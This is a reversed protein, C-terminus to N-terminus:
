EHGKLKLNVFPLSGAGMVQPFEGNWKEIAMKQLIEPTITLKMLRQAEAQGQARNVEAKASQIAEQATYEARRAHQEAIQKSEIAQTFETSFTLNVISLDNFSVGYSLLRSKLMGDITEKLEMRKSLIEEATMKSMAAKFVENVAPTIIRGVVDDEDGISRYTKVVQDPTIAWNVAVHTHVDQMDRSAGTAEVETKQIQVDIKAMGMIFPIWIYAGSPKPDDSASGLTIRVGRQGPGVVSCGCCLLVSLIFYKM